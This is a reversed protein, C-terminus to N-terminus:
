FTATGKSAVASPNLRSPLKPPNNTALESRNVVWRM